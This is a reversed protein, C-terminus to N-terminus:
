RRAHDPQTIRCPTTRYPITDFGVRPRRYVGFSFEPCESQGLRESLGELNQFGQLDKSETM